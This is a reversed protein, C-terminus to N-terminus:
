RGPKSLRKAAALNTRVPRFGRFTPLSRSTILCTKFRHSLGDEGALFVIRLAHEIKRQFSRNGPDELARKLAPLRADALWGLRMAAARRVADALDSLPAVAADGTLNFALNVRVLVSPDSALLGILV